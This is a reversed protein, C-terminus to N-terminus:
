KVPINEPRRIRESESYHIEMEKGHLKLIERLKGEMAQQAKTVFEAQQAYKKADTTFANIAKSRDEMNVWNWYGDEDEFKIDNLSELSLLKPKPLFVLAKDDTIELAFRKNLDFGAKAEFSGKITIKKTSGFRTNTWEYEHQFNQSLTALELIPTQQQLVVTNNVTIEPTFQFAESIDHGIQKAGDYSKQALTTPIVIVIVYAAVCVTILLIIILILRARGFM